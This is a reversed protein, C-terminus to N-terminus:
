KKSGMFRFSSPTITGDRTHAGDLTGPFNFVLVIRGEQIEEMFVEKDLVLGREIEYFLAPCVPFPPSENVKIEFIWCFIAKTTAECNGM